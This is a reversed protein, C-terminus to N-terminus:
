PFAPPAKSVSLDWHWFPKGSKRYHAIKEAKRLNYQESSFGYIEMPIELDGRLLIFDSFVAEEGDYRLPKCFSEGKRTMLDAVQAEYQSDVPIFQDTTEMAAGYKWQLGGRDTRQVGCIIFLRNNSAAVNSHGGQRRMFRTFVHPWQTQLREISKRNTWVPIDDPFGKLRMAFDYKSEAISLVEAVILLIGKKNPGSIHDLRDFKSHIAVRKLADEEPGFRASPIFVREVADDGGVIQDHLEERLKHYVQGLGRRGTFAPSWTNLGSEEWLFNLFGRLTITNRKKGPGRPRAPAADEDTSDAVRTITSLSVGLNIKLKGGKQSIAGETYLKSADANMGGHSDCDRHHLPGANPGRKFIYTDGAKTIHMTLPKTHGNCLCLPKVKDIYAKQLEFQWKIPHQDAWFRSLLKGNIHIDSM